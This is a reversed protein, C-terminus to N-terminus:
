SRALSIGCVAPARRAKAAQKQASKNSASGGPTGTSKPADGPKLLGVVASVAPDGIRTLTEITARKLAPNKQALSKYFEDSLLFPLAPAADPGLEGVAGLLAVREADTTQKAKLKAITEDITKQARGSTTTPEAALGATVVVVTTAFCLTKMM